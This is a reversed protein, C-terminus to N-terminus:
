VGALTYSSRRTGELAYRLADIVHNDKDNLIPLVEETRQDVKWSYNLMEDATRVCRPHVIIDFSKLFEIGDEVSGKGKVSEKMRPFGHRRLYAITEPRANDATCPWLESNPIKKFLAPTADIECHTQVAEQDIYLKRGDIFCRIMVTPDISYGFDVGLYFRTDRPTEFAEIRWNRFVRAESITQYHGLWIHAYKDLDRERDRLMDRRLAKPFFPNNNYNATVCVFDPNNKNDNFLKEIPTKPSIPNWAFDLVSDERRFTPTILEISRQSLQQAEDCYFRNFGELSKITQATHNQLGRFIILSNTPEYVIERDTIQFHGQMHFLDIKDELLQKSSDKISLQVERACVCRTHKTMMDLIIDEGFFHSKGSGRGGRAGRYRRKQVLPDFVPPTEVLLKGDVIPM